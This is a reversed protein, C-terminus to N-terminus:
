ILDELERDLEEFWKHIPNLDNKEKLERLERYVGDMDGKKILGLLDKVKITFEVFEVVGLFKDAKQKRDEPLDKKIDEVSEKIMELADCLIKDWDYDKYAEYVEKWKELDFGKRKARVTEEYLAQLDNDIPGLLYMLRHKLYSLKFTIDRKKDEEIILNKQIEEYTEKLKRTNNYFGKLIEGRTM